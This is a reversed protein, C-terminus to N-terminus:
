GLDLVPRAGVGDRGASPTPAVAVRPFPDLGQMVRALIGEVDETMAGLANVAGAVVPGVERGKSHIGGVMMLQVLRLGLAQTGSLILDTVKEFKGRDPGGMAIEGFEIKTRISFQGDKVSVSRSELAVPAPENAQANRDPTPQPAPEGSADLISM